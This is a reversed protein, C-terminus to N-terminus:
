LQQITTADEMVMASLLFDPDSIQCARGQLGLNKVEVKQVQMPTSFIFVFFAVSTPQPLFSTHWKGNLLQLRDVDRDLRNSM